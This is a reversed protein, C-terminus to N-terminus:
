AARSGISFSVFLFSFLLLPLLFLSSLSVKEGNKNVLVECHGFVFETGEHSTLANVLGDCVRLTLQEGHKNKIVAHQKMKCLEILVGCVDCLWGCEFHKQVQAFEVHILTEPECMAVITRSLNLSHTVYEPLLSISWEASKIPEIASPALQTVHFVDGVRLAGQFNKQEFKRALGAAALRATDTQASGWYKLLIM